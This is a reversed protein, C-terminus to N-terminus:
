GWCMVGGHLVKKPLVGPAVPHSQVVTEESAGRVIRGDTCEGKAPVPQGPVVGRPLGIPEVDTKGVSRDEGEGRPLPGLEQQVRVGLCGDTQVVASAGCVAGLVSALPFQPRIPHKRKKLLYVRAAPVTLSM